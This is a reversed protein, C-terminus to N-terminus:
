RVRRVVEYAFPHEPPNSNLLTFCLTLVSLTIQADLADLVEEWEHVISSLNAKIWAIDPPEPSSSSIWNLMQSQSLYECLPSLVVMLTPEDPGYGGSCSVSFKRECIYKGGISSSSFVGSPCLPVFERAPPMNM